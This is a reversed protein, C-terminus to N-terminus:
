QNVAFTAFFREQIERLFIPLSVKPYSAALLDFREEQEKEKTLREELKKQKERAEKALKGNIDAFFISSEEIMHKQLDL